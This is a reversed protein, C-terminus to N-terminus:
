SIKLIIHITTFTSTSDLNFAIVDNANVTTTWGTLTSDQYKIDSSITPKASACISDAVTPPYNAFSDKWIDIVCSGTGGTTLVTVSEITGARPCFVYIPTVPTTISLFSVWNGYKDNKGAAATSNITVTGTGSPTISINTGPVIENVVTTIGLDTKVQAISRNTYVGSKVQIFEDENKTIAAIETINAPKSTIGSWPVAAASGVNFIEYGASNTLQTDDIVFYLLGTDAQKVCDGNQVTATTLAFRAPEDAVVVLREVVSAPLVDIPLTGTTINSANTCDVNPVNNLGVSTADLGIIDSANIPEQAIKTWNAIDTTFAASSTHDLKSTYLGALPDDVITGPYYVINPIGIDTIGSYITTPSWETISAIAATSSNINFDTIKWGIIADVYTLSISLGNADLLIDTEGEILNGNGTITVNNISYTSELDILDITAGQLANAPLSVSFPATSSDVFYGTAVQLQMLDNTHDIKNWKKNELSGVVVGVHENGVHNTAISVEFHYNAYVITITHTHPIAGASTSIRVVNPLTGDLLGSVEESTLYTQHKHGSGQDTIEIFYAVDSNTVSVNNLFTASAYENVVWGIAANAYVFELGLGDVNIIVDDAQSKINNGNAFVTLNNTSYNNAVPIQSIKQGPTPSAPLTISQATLSTDVIIVDNASALYPSTETVGDLIIYNSISGGAGSLKYWDGDEYVVLDLLSTTLTGLTGAVSITYTDGNVPSAPPPGSADHQGKYNLITDNDVELVLGTGTTKLRKGTPLSNGLFALRRPLESNIFNEFATAM